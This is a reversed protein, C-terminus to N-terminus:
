EDLNAADFGGKEDQEENDASDLAEVADKLVEELITEVADLDEGDLDERPDQFRAHLERSIDGILEDVNM